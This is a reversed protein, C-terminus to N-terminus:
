IPDRAHAPKLYASLAVDAPWSVGPVCQYWYGWILYFLVSVQIDAIKLIMRMVQENILKTRKTTTEQTHKKKHLWINKIRSFFILSM